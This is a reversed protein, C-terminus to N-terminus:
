CLGMRRIFDDLESESFSRQERESAVKLMELLSFALSTDLGRRELFKEVSKRGSKKGFFISRRRGILIPDFNEYTHLDSALASVHIGSEHSFANGGVLPKNPHLPVGSFEAVKACVESMMGYQFKFGLWALRTQAARPDEVAAAGYEARNQFLLASLVEETATNGAREGIGCFTSSLFTAGASIASLANATAMGFDNHGHFGLTGRFNGRIASWMLFVQDPTACGLTDCPVFTSARGSIARSFDLLYGTDARTADEGFVMADMGQSRCADLLGLVNQTHEERSVGFKLRIHLDSVPAIFLMAHAGCEAALGIHEPRLMSVAVLRSELEMRSIKKAAIEDSDSVAPMIEIYDAGFESFLKALEVKQEVTFVVGPMQEGDRLTSDCLVLRRPM